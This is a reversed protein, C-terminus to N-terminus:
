MGWLIQPAWIGCGTLWILTAIELLLRAGTHPIYDMWIDRMGIWAHWLLSLAFLLSAVRMWQSSFLAKWEVYQLAPHALLIGVFIVIYVAMVLATVRQALWDRLGYHAGVVIRKVM